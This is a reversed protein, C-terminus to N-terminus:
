AIYDMCIVVSTSTAALRVLNLTFKSKYVNMYCYLKVNLNKCFLKEVFNEQV